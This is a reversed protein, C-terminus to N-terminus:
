LASAYHRSEEAERDEASFEELYMSDSEAFIVRGWGAIFEGHEKLWACFEDALESLLVNRDSLGLSVAMGAVVSDHISITHGAKAKPSEAQFALYSFLEFAIQRRQFLAEDKLETQPISSNGHSRSSEAEFAEPMEDEDQETQSEDRSVRDLDARHATEIASLLRETLGASPQFFRLDDAFNSDLTIRM